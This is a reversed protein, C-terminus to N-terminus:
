DHSAEIIKTALEQPRTFMAEHSGGMEVLKFEGLRSSMKPHWFGAPLAQDETCNLYSKPINLAYFKKLDLRDHFPQCPEPTLMKYTEEAMQDDADNIFAHRWVEYPLLVTNDGSAAALSTFLEYYAEPMNDFMNEGDQLVFANWYILRQIREPIVEAVKSIITGCYSHGLLVIESLDHKVIYDAISQSCQTHTVNRDANSGHGAVTPCHVTHGQARLHTAVPEWLSGDHWSGHVLVYTTM